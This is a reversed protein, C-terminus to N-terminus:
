ATVSNTVNDFNFNSLVKKLLHAGYKVSEHSAKQGSELLQPIPSVRAEFACEYFFPLSVRSKSLDTNVVRHVTPTYIGNTYVQFINGKLYGECFAVLDQYHSFSSTKQSWIKCVLQKSQMTGQRPLLIECTPFNYLPKVWKLCIVSIAFLPGLFLNPMSGSAQRIRPRCHVQKM